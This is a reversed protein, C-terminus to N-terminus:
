KAPCLVGEGKAERELTGERLRRLFLREDELRWKEMQEGAALDRLGGENSREHRAVAGTDFLLKWGALHLRYTFDTEERHGRPSYCLPFGGIELAAKVRYIFSSYLHEVEIPANWGGNEYRFFQCHNEGRLMGAISYSCDQTGIAEFAFLQGEWEPQPYVGGAAGINPWQLIKGYLREIFNESELVVDDDLRLIFEFGQENLYELAKQHSFHPGRHPGSIVEIGAGEPLNGGDNVILIKGPQLTQAKISKLLKKLAEPRNRTPIAIALDRAYKKSEATEGNGGGWVEVTADPQSQNAQESFAEGERAKERDGALAAEIAAKVEEVSISLM